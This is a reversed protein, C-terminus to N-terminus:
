DKMGERAVLAAEPDMNCRLRYFRVQEGLRRILSLTKSMAAEDRPRYSQQIVVPLVDSFSQKEIVNTQGRELVCVAKLPASANTNMGEKGSWPTGFIECGGEGVRILPKDGNIVFAGPIERLWLRTHTTKGTGSPATFLYAQGDACVASGHMLFVDYDLLAAAIKRYVAITELYGEPYRRKPLGEVEAERDSKVQELAVEEPTPCVTFAPPQTTLYDRCLQRVDDFRAKVAIPVGALKVTFETM